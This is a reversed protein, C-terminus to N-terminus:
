LRYIKKQAGIKCIMAYTTKPKWKRSETPLKRASCIRRLLGNEPCLTQLQRLQASFYLNRPIRNWFFNFIKRTLGVNIDFYEKSDTTNRTDHAKGAHHIIVDSSPTDKLNSWDYCHRIKDNHTIDLGMLNHQNLNDCLNSGVFGTYGAILVNM